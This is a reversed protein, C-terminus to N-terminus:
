PQFAGLDFFHHCFPVEQGAQGAQLDPGCQILPGLVFLDAEM